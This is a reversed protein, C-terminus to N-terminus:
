PSKSIRKEHHKQHINLLRNINYKKLVIKKQILHNLWQKKNTFKDGYFIKLLTSEAIGKRDFLRDLDFTSPLVRDRICM